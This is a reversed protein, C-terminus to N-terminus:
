RRIRSRNSPSPWSPLHQQDLVLFDDADPVGLCLGVRGTPFLERYLRHEHHLYQDM